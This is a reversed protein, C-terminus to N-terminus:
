ALVRAVQEMLRSDALGERRRMSTLPVTIQRDLRLYSTRPSRWIRPDVPVFGERGRKDASTFMLVTATRRGAAVVLAPRDKSGDGEEFPIQAWWVEGVQVKPLLSTPVWWWRVLAWGAILAALAAAVLAAMAIPLRTEAIRYALVGGIAAAALWTALKRRRQSPPTDPTPRASSPSKPM